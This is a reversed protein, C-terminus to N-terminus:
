LISALSSFGDRDAHGGDGVGKGGGLGYPISGVEGVVQVALMCRRIRAVSTKKATRSTEM